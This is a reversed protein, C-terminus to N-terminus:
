FFIVTKGVHLTCQNAATALACTSTDPKSKIKAEMALKEMPLLPLLM